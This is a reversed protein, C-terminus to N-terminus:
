SVRNAMGRFHMVVMHIYDNSRVNGIKGDRRLKVLEIFKDSYQNTIQEQILFAQKSICKNIDTQAPKM